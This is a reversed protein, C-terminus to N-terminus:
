RIRLKGLEDFMGAPRLAAQDKRRDMHHAAGVEGRPKRPSRVRVIVFRAPPELGRDRLKLLCERPRLRLGRRGDYDGEVGVRAEVPGRSTLKWEPGQEVREFVFGHREAPWDQQNM